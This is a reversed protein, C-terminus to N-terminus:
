IQCFPNWRSSYREDKSRTEGQVSDGVLLELEQDLENSLQQAAKDMNQFAEAVTNIRLSVAHALEAVQQTLNGAAEAKQIDHRLSAWADCFAEMMQDDGDVAALFDDEIAYLRSRLSNLRPMSYLRFSTLIYLFLYSLTVDCNVAITM